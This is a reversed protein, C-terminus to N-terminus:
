RAGSTNQPDTGNFTPIQSNDIPFYVNHRSYFDEQGTSLEMAYQELKMMKANKIQKFYAVGALAALIGIIAVVVMLEILTLGKNQALTQIGKAHAKM